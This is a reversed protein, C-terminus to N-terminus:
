KVLFFRALRSRLNLGNARPTNVDIAIFSSLFFTLACNKKFFFLSLLLLAWTFLIRHNFNEVERIEKIKAGAKGILSGCQSAPIVLRLTVPPKSITGGNTAGNGLDQFLLIQIWNLHLPIREFGCKTIILIFCKTDSGGKYTLFFFGSNSPIWPNNKRAHQMGLLIRDQNNKKLWLYLETLYLYLSM